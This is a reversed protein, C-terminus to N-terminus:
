SRPPPRFPTCPASRRFGPPRIGPSTPATPAPSRGSGRGCAKIAPWCAGAARFVQITLAHCRLAAARVGRPPFTAHGSSHCSGLGEGAGVLPRPCTSAHGLRRDRRPDRGTRESRCMPHRMAEPGHLWASIGFTGLTRVTDAIPMPCRRHRHRPRCWPPRAACGCADARVMILNRVTESRCICM